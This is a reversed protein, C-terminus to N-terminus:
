TIISNCSRAYTNSANKCVYFRIHYRYARTAFRASVNIFTKKMLATRRTPIHTRSVHFLSSSARYDSSNHIMKDLIRKLLKALIVNSTDDKSVEEMLIISNNLDIDEFYDIVAGGGTM